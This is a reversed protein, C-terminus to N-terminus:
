QSRPWDTKNGRIGDLVVLASDPETNLLQEAKTIISEAHQDTCSFLIFALITLFLYQIRLIAM